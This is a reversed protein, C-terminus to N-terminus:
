LSCLFMLEITIFQRLVACSAVTFLQVLAQPIPRTLKTANARNSLMRPHHKWSAHM